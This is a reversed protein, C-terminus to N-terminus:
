REATNLAAMLASKMAAIDACATRLEEAVDDTVPLAGMHAAKALQNMNSALHSSGLKALAQALAKEDTRPLRRPKRPSARDGFVRQRIFASVPKNGAAEKLWAREEATARFSLPPPRKKKPRAATNFQDASSPTNM